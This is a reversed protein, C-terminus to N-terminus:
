PQKLSLFYIGPFKQVQCLMWPIRIQAFFKQDVYEDFIKEAM